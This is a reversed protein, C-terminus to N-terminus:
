VRMAMPQFMEWRILIVDERRFLGQCVICRMGNEEMAKRLCAECFAHGCTGLSCVKRHNCWVAKAIIGATAKMREIEARGEKKEEIKRQMETAMEREWELASGAILSATLDKKGSLFAYLCSFGDVAGCVGEFHGIATEANERTVRFARDIQVKLRSLSERSRALAPSPLSRRKPHRTHFNAITKSKANRKDELHAIDEL